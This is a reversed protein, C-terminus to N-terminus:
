PLRDLALRYLGDATLDALRDEPHSVIGLRLRRCMLAARGPLEGQPVQESRPGLLDEVVQAQYFRIRSTVRRALCCLNLSPFIAAEPLQGYALRDALNTELEQPSIDICVTKRNKELWHDGAFMTCLHRRGTGGNM